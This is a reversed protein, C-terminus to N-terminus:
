IGMRRNRYIDQPDVSIQGTPIQVTRHRTFRLIHQMPCVSGVPYVPFM